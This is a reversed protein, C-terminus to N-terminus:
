VNLTVQEIKTSGKTAQGLDILIQRGLNAAPRSQYASHAKWTVFKRVSLVHIERENIKRAM